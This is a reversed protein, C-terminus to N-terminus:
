GRKETLRVHMSELGRFAISPIFRLSEDLVQANFRSFFAPFFEGLQMKALLHGICHHIGPGFTVV